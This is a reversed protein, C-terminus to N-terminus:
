FYKEASKLPISVKFKKLSGPWLSFMRHFFYIITQKINLAIDIPKTSIAHLITSPLNYPYVERIKKLLNTLYSKVRQLLKM